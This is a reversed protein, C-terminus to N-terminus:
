HIVVNEGPHYFDPRCRHMVGGETWIITAEKLTAPDDILKGIDSNPAFGARAADAMAQVREMNGKLIPTKGAAYAADRAEKAANSRFADADIVAIPNGEGTFLAHAASGLDFITKNTDEADKNLRKTNQWVFRPATELIDRVISSTMSPDPAPDALYTAFDMAKILTPLNM